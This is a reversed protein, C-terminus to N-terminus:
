QSLKLLLQKLTGCEEETLVATVERDTDLIISRFLEAQERGKETTRLAYSRADEPDHTRELLGLKELGTILKTVGPNSLQTFREIARQNVTRRDEWDAVYVLSMAQYMSVGYEELARSNTRNLLFDARHVLHCVTERLNVPTQPM